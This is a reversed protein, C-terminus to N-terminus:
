QHAPFRTSVHKEMKDRLAKIAETIPIQLTCGSALDHGGGGFSNAVERANFPARARINVRVERRGADGSETESCLAALKVGKVRLLFNVLNETDQRSTGTEKFDDHTIWCIACIGHAFTESRLMARGWLRLVEASLNSELKEAIENPSVGANLLKMACNHSKLTTSAFSFSGNDSVIAVYLAIAENLEIGWQSQSLLDTVMEGTASATADVWNILGYRENDKHHDINIIPCEVAGSLLGPVSRSSKSTDVCIVVGHRGPFGYPMSRMEICEINNLLFAYRDPCPDPCGLLVNKSRRAGFYTLAVACGLSDGDPKEHALILWNEASELTDLIKKIM